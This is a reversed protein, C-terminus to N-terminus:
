DMEELRVAADSQIWRDDNERDYVLLGDDDVLSGYRGFMPENASHTSDDVNEPISM